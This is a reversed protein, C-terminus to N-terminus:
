ECQKEVARCGAAIKGAMVKDIPLNDLSYHQSLVEEIAKDL